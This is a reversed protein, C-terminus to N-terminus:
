MLQKPIPIFIYVFKNEPPNVGILLKPTVPPPERIYNEIPRGITLFYAPRRNNIYHNYGLYM